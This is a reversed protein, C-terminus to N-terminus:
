GNPVDKIWVNSSYKGVVYEVLSNVIIGIVINKIISAFPKLWFPFSQVVIYDFLTGILAMVATKKDAGLPIINEVFLILEDLSNIIFSASTILYTGTVKWWSNNKINQQNWRSKLDLLYQDLQQVVNQIEDITLQRKEM